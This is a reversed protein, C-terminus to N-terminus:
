LWGGFNKLLYAQVDNSSLNEGSRIRHIFDTVEQREEYISGGFFDDAAQMAIEFVRGQTEKSALYANSLPRYEVGYSKPRFAGIKGYLSRRKDDSDWLLSAPYLIADLQRVLGCCRKFHADDHPNEWETWGLHIHGSGTRFPEDTSPPENQDGTYANYDPTCGLEKPKDPLADFYERDFTATPTMAITLDPRFKKYEAELEHLVDNIYKTFEDKTKAPYTNFELAVGDVQIAGSKVPHPNEKTGPILDHGSFYKGASDRVFVEPDTGITLQM